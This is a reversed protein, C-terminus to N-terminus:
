VRMPKIPLGSTVTIVPARRNTRFFGTVHDHLIHHRQVHLRVLSMWKNAPVSVSRPVSAPLHKDSLAHM